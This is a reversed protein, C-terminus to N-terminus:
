DGSDVGWTSPMADHAASSVPLELGELRALEIAAHLDKQSKPSEHPGVGRFPGDYDLAYTGIRERLYWDQLGSQAESHTVIKAFDSLDGGAAQALRIGEDMAALKVFSTLNLALKAAMGTGLRGLHVILSAYCALAPRLREVDGVEGGLM